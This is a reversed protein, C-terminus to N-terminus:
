EGSEKNSSQEMEFFKKLACIVPPHLKVCLMDSSIKICGEEDKTINVTQAVKNAGFEGINSDPQIPGPVNAKLLSDIMGKMDVMGNEIIKNYKSHM